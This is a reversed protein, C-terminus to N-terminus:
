SHYRKEIDEKLKEVEKTVETKPRDDSLDREIQQLDEKFRKRDRIASQSEARRRRFVIILLILILLLAFLMLIWPWFALFSPQEQVPKMILPIAPASTAEQPTTTAVEVPAATVPRPAITVHATGLIGTLKTGNGDNAFVDGSSFSLLADGSAVAQFTVKLLPVPGGIFGPNLVVGEFHVNGNGAANTFSPERVWLDMISGEKSISVAKLLESPFSIDGSAANMAVDPSSVTVTLTFTQGVTVSKQIPSISLSAAYVSLPGLFTGIALLGMAFGILRNRTPM